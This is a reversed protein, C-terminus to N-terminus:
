KLQKIKILYNFWEFLSIVNTVQNKKLPELDTTIFELYFDWWFLLIYFWCLMFIWVMNFECFEMECYFQMFTVNIAWEAFLCVFSLIFQNYSLSM